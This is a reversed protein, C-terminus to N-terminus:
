GCSRGFCISHKPDPQRGAFELWGSKHLKRWAIALYVPEAGFWSCFRRKKTKERARSHERRMMALGMAEFDHRSPLSDSNRPMKNDDSRLSLPLSKSASFSM